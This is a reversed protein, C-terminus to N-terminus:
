LFLHKMEQLHTVCFRVIRVSRNDNQGSAPAAEDSPIVLAIVPPEECKSCSPM